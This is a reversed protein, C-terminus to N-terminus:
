ATAADPRAFATNIYTSPPVKAHPFPSWHYLSPDAAAAAVLGGVHRHDLPELRIHTGPLVPGEPGMTGTHLSDRRRRLLVRFSSGTIGMVLYPTDSRSRRGTWRGTRRLRARHDVM